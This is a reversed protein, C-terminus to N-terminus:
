SGAQFFVLLGDWCFDVCLPGWAVVMVRRFFVGGDAGDAGPRSGGGSRVSGVSKRGLAGLFCREGTLVSSDQFPLHEGEDGGHVVGVVRSVALLM